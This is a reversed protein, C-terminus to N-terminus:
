DDYYDDDDHKGTGFIRSVSNDKFLLDDIDENVNIAGYRILVEEVIDSDFNTEGIEETIKVLNAILEGNKYVLLAPLGIPDFELDHALIRLFKAGVFKRALYILCENLLRCQPNSNEYLHVIVCVNSAENDIAKVYQNSSIEKLSGFRKKLSKNTNTADKIENLRQDRYKKLVEDDSSIDELEKLLNEQAKIEQDEQYTTTTFAKSMMRENHAIIAFAKQQKVQQKHYRHDALVGKPGTQPGGHQPPAEVTNNRSSSVNSEEDSADSAHATRSPEQEDDLNAKLLSEVLADM